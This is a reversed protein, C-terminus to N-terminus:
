PQRVLADRRLMGAPDSGADGSPLDMVETSSSGCSKSFAAAAARSSPCLRDLCGARLQAALRLKRTVLQQRLWIAV